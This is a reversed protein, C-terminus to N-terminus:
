VKVWGQWGREPHLHICPLDQVEWSHPSRIVPVVQQRYGCGRLMAHHAHSPPARPGYVGQVQRHVANGGTEGDPMNHLAASVGLDTKVATHHRVTVGCNIRPTICIKIV